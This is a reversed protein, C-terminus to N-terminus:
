LELLGAPLNLTIRDIRDDVDALFEDVLPVLAPTCTCRDIQLMLQGPMESIGIVTGVYGSETDYVEWGTWDPADPACANLAGEPLSSRRVLCHCGVLMQALNPDCVERFHVVGGELGDPEARDVVVNRPADLVPPVLCVQMGASFVFPLGAACRAVLGGDLHKTNTLQAIDIWTHM